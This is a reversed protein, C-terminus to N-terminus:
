AKPPKWFNQRQNEFSGQRLDLLFRGLSGWGKEGEEGETEVQVKIGVEGQSTELYPKIPPPPPSLVLIQVPM